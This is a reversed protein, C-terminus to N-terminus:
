ADPEQIFFANSKLATVIGRTTVTQGVLPSSAGPGQITHIATLAIDNDTVTVIVPAVPTLANSYAPDASSTITQTVTNTTTGQSIADDIARVTIVSPTTTTLSVSVSSTFTVGDTSLETRTGATAQIQVAGTPTTNLAIAYTDTAGGEAVATNG